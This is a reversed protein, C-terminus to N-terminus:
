FEVEHGNACIVKTSLAGGCCPDTPAPIQGAVAPLHQDGWNQLAILIPLLDKGAQTLQYAMRTRSKEEKYTTKIVIGHSELLQLRKSLLNRPCKLNAELETFRTLGRWLDRLILLTWKEGIIELTRAISCKSLAPNTTPTKSM